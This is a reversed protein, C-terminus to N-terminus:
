HRRHFRLGEACCQHPRDLTEGPLQRRVHFPIYIIDTGPNQSISHELQLRPLPDHIYLCRSDTSAKEDTLLILDANRFFGKWTYQGVEQYHKLAQKVSGKSMDYDILHNWSVTCAMQKSALRVLGEAKAYGQDSDLKLLKVVEQALRLPDSLWVLERKLNSESYLREPVPSRRTPADELDGDPAQSPVLDAPISHTVPPQRFAETAYTRSVRWSPTNYSRLHRPSARSILAPPAATANIDSLITRICRQICASCELM